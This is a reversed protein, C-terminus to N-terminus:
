RGRAPTVYKLLKSIGKKKCLMKRLNFWVPHGHWIKNEAEPLSVCIQKALTTCIEREQGSQADNYAQIDKNM